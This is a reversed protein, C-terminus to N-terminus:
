GCSNQRGCISTLQACQRPRGGIFCFDSYACNRSSHTLLNTNKSIQWYSDLKVIYKPGKPPRQDNVMNVM